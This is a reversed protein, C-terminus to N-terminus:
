LQWNDNASNILCPFAPSSVFVYARFPNIGRIGDFWWSAMLRNLALGVFHDFVSLSNTLKQWLITQNHNVM